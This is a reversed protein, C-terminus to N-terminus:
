GVGPERHLQSIPIFARLVDTRPALWQNVQAADGAISRDFAIAATVVPVGPWWSGIEEGNDLADDTFHAVVSVGCDTM